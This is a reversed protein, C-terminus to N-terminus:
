VIYVTNVNTAAILIREIQFLEPNEDFKQQALQKEYYNSFLLFHHFKQRSKELNINQIFLQLM